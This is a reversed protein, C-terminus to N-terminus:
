NRWRCVEMDVRGDPRFVVGEKELRRKQEQALRPDRKHISLSGDVALVRHWPTEPPAMAMIGGVERASLRVGHVMDALQGYSVVKGPPIACVCEFVLDAARESVSRSDRSRRAGQGSGSFRM